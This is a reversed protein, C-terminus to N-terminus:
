FVHRKRIDLYWTHDKTEAVFSFALPVDFIDVVKNETQGFNFVAIFRPGVEIKGKSQLLVDDTRQDRVSTSDDPVLEAFM